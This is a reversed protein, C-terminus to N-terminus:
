NISATQIKNNEIKLFLRVKREFFIREFWNLSMIFKEAEIYRETLEEMRKLYDSSTQINIM